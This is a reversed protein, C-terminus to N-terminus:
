YWQWRVQFQRTAKTPVIAEITFGTGAVLTKAIIGSLAAFLLHSDVSNSSTSDGQVWVQVYSTTAIGTQGTVAVSATSSPTTTFDLTTTGASIVGSGPVSPGPFYPM